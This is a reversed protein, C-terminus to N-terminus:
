FESKAFESSKKEILKNTAYDQMDSEELVQAFKRKVM